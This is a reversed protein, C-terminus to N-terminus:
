ELVDLWKKLVYEFSHKELNLSTNKKCKEYIEIDEIMLNMAQTLATFNQNEVLLGNTQDLIIENPGSSCDFSIVPTECALSEILVTPFGEFKSALVLFLAQKMYAFPNTKKGLLVVNEQQNLEKIKLQINSLEEGEGIIFLKINQNPLKSKSYSEILEPVQKEYSLRGVFLIFDENEEIPENSKSIISSFDIPNKITKINKYQYDQKIKNEIEQSVAIILPKKITWLKFLWKNKPLYNELLFSRITYISKCNQYLINAILIEDWDNIRSRFDILHSIKNKKIYQYLISFKRIRQFATKNPLLGLNLLKGGYQYDIGDNVIITHVNFGNENLLLSINAFNKDAGGHHLSYGLLAIKFM